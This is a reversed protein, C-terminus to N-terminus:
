QVNDGDHFYTFGYSAGDGNVIARTNAGGGSVCSNERDKGLTKDNATQIESFLEDPIGVVLIDLNGSLAKGLEPYYDFFPYGGSINRLEGVASAPTPVTTMATRIKYSKEVSISNEVAQIYEDPIGIGSDAFFPTSSNDTEGEYSFTYYPKIIYDTLKLDSEALVTIYDCLTLVLTFLIVSM